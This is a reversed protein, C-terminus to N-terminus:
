RGLVPIVSMWEFEPSTQIVAVKGMLDGTGVDGGGGKPLFILVSLSTMKSTASDSIVTDNHTVERAEPVGQEVAPSYPNSPGSDKCKGKRHLCSAVVRKERYPGTLTM